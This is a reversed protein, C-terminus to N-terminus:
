NLFVAKGSLLSKKAADAIVSGGRADGPVVRLKDSKGSLVDLFHHVESQYADAYRVLGAKLAATTLGDSASATTSTLPLNDVKFEGASTHVECRQDYGYTARRHNNISCVIGSPFQLVVTVADIDNAQAIEPIFAHGTCYVSVPEEGAIYRAFDFDHILSDYFYGGSSLLYQASNHTAGDRSSIHIMEVTHGNARAEDVLQKQQMFHPDSRRQFGIYLHVHHEAVVALCRDTEALSLALPKECFIHKGGRAAQEIIETHTHSTTSIFVAHVREDRLAQDIGDMTLPTCNFSAAFQEVREKDIDAAYLIKAGIYNEIAQARVTGMRGVGIICVGIAQAHVPKVGIPAVALSHSKGQQVPHQQERSQQARATTKAAAICDEKRVSEVRDGGRAVIEIWHDLENKYAQVFRQPFSHHLVPQTFGQQAARTVTTVPPNALTLMGDRGLAEVRIDYGYTTRRSNDILCMTGSPFKMSIVATDDAGAKQYPALFASAVAYVSEPEEGILWRAVDVDHTAFDDFFSGGGALADPSPPPHDRSTIRVIHLPGIAGREIERKLEAFSPDFRRQYACLLPVGHQEASAFCAEIDEVSLAVPKEVFVPIKKETFRLIHDRHQNTSSCIVVGNLQADALIVEIDTTLVAGPFKESLEARREDSINRLLIYALTARPNQQVHLAHTMGMRGLGIAAIRLKGEDGRQKKAKGQSSGSRKVGRGKVM